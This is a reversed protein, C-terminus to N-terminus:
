KIFKSEVGARHLIDYLSSIKNKEGRKKCYTFIVRQKARSFAVFFAARSEKPQKAFSWWASDDLGVFIVTQYELGKSKHITMIPVSDKGEFSDLVANWDNDSILICSKTLHDALKDIVAEFREPQKYEPYAKCINEQGIFDVIFEFLSKTRIKHKHLRKMRENLNSHFKSLKNQLLRGSKSNEPDIGNLHKLVNCCDSWYIGARSKSGFRLFIIIINTLREAIIEQIQSEDRAKINDSQFIPLLVNAYDEAKQKVLLVFDRPIFESSQFYSNIYTALYEAEVQPTSFEWIVCADDLIPFNKKSIAKTSTSDITCAIHHQIEVLKSSSRHNSGLQIRPAGFDKEFDSFADDLAMAWHMIRQKNDGVATLVTKQSDQFSTKVLDYQVHTTDQFEDMFVHSYTARLASCIYPNTRLILEVLRGIMPFTLRSKNGIHLCTNWWQMAAWFNVCTTNGIAIPLPSGLIDNKEFSSSQIAQLKNKLHVNEPSTALRVLFDSYEGRNPFFIEYDETPKFLDPLTTLFRDLMHKSFADFTFSDFRSANEHHCREKVRAKLNEASDKKFSIALVRRPYACQRTQLLYCARQALLETKGAGPGAIVSYNVNSRVIKEALTDLSDVGVPIWDNPHIYLTTM